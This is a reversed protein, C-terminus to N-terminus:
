VDSLKVFVEELSHAKDICAKEIVAIDEDNKGIADANKVSVYFKIKPETGSPRVSVKSGDELVFQLVNSKPFNLDSKSTLAEGSYTAGLQYDNLASVSVGALVKPPNARLVEMMKAIKEAGSKGPLVLNHLTEHYCGFKRFINYLDKKPSLGSGRLWAVYQAAVACSIVGDKDRVFSGALFGYSEEGGCVFNKGEKTQYDEVLQCIWKFGTLTEPCELGEAEAIERQLDTTVITKVIFPKEPLTKNEKHRDIVFQNLLCGIQNGNPKFYDEGDRIYMGIRDCDPDTAMVLDANTKRALDLAMSLASDDEPNPSKVTPFDGSQVAQEKVVEVNNFGMKKLMETVPYLGAGHLPSYVIKINKDLNGAFSLGMVKEFYADDLESDIIRISGSSVGEDFTELTPLMAYDNSENYIDIIKKDHPPVLQGGTQWYVKFGNYEPPNHSATICIGAHCGFHRVMYSLMPVPRLEKTILVEIGLKALVCAAQEAYERSFNRSDHSIAIRTKAESAFFEKVYSGLSYSARMINYRNMRSTGAGIIGRLGGTGFELDRYFRETLEKEDKAEILASIERRTKEDFSENTAWYTAKELIAQDM